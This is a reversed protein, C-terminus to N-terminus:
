LDKLVSYATKYRQHADAFAASLAIEPAISRAIPPM